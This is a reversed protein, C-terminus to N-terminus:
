VNETLETESWVTNDTMKYIYSAAYPSVFKIVKIDGMRTKVSQNVKFKAPKM